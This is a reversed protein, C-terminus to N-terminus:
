NMIRITRGGQGPGGFAEQMMKGFEARTIKKGKTPEQIEKKNVQESVSTALLEMEGNNVSVQLIAGPLGAFAEPGAPVPIADTFWAEIVQGRDNTRTAKKCNFKLISKTEGTLKWPQAKLTDEILYTKAGMERSEVLKQQNYNRFQIADAGAMRFMMRGGGEGSVFPDAAEEEPIAKYVSMSDSFLLQHKSTRFQPVMGKMQEDQIKRHVDIKRDYLITGEKLQAVVVITSLMAVLAILVKKMTRNNQKMVFTYLSVSTQHKGVQSFLFYPLHRRKGTFGSGIRVENKFTVHQITLVDTQREVM